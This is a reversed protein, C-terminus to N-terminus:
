FRRRLKIHAQMDEKDFYASVLGWETFSLMMTEVLHQMDRFEFTEELPIAFTKTEEILKM